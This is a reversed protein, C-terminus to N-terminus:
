RGRGRGRGASGGGRGKSRGGGRMASTAAAKLKKKTHRGTKMKTGYWEQRRKEGKTVGRRRPAAADVSSRACPRSGSASAGDRAAKAAFVPWQTWPCWTSVTHDGCQWVLKGAAPLLLTMRIVVTQRAHCAPSCWPHRQQLKYVVAAEGLM